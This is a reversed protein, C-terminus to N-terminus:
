DTVFCVLPYIIRLVYHFIHPITLPVEIVALFDLGSKNLTFIVAAPFNAGSVLVEFRGDQTESVIVMVEGVVIENEV